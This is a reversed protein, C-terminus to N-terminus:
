PTDKGVSKRKPYPGILCAVRRREHRMVSAQFMPQEGVLLTAPLSVPHRLVLLSGPQINMLKEAAVRIGLVGLELPFPCH